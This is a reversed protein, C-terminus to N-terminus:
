FLLVDGPELQEDNEQALPKGEPLFFQFASKEQDTVERKSILRYIEDRIRGFDGSQLDKQHNLIYEAERVRHEMMQCVLDFVQINVVCNAVLQTVDGIEIFVLDRTDFWSEESLVDMIAFNQRIQKLAEEDVKQIKEFTEFGEEVFDIQDFLSGIEPGIRECIEAKKGYEKIKEFGAILSTTFVEYHHSTKNELNIAIFHDRIGLANQEISAIAQDYKEKMVPRVEEVMNKLGLSPKKLLEYSCDIADAKFYIQRMQDLSNYKSAKLLNVALEFINLVFHQYGCWFSAEERKSQQWGGAYNLPTKTAFLEPLVYRPPEFFYEGNGAELCEADIKKKRIEQIDVVKCRTNGSDDFVYTQFSMPEVVGSEYKLRFATFLNRNLNCVRTDGGITKLWDLLNCLGLWSVFKLKQADILDGPEVLNELPLMSTTDGLVGYLYVTTGARHVIFREDELITEAVAEGM